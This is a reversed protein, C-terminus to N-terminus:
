PEPYWTGDDNKRIWTKSYWYFRGRQDSPMTCNYRSRGVSVDQQPSVRFLNESINEIKMKGGPGYCALESIRWKGENFELDLTPKFNGNSILSETGVVRIPLPLTNAKTKFSNLDTYVGALPFRPLSLFNSNADLAGSQQGFGVYELRDLLSLIERNFEGYPYAFLKPADVFYSEIIQQAGTIETEIRHLWQHQTESPQMRLLHLHSQTHNVVLAGHESMEQLQKWTLYLTDNTGVLDTAVFITFSYDLRKLLPYAETYLNAYADDFTIAIARHPINKGSKLSRIAKDLSLINFNNESLYQMHAAFDTPSISTIAPTTGSVHHYQLVVLSASVRSTLLCFLLLGLKNM